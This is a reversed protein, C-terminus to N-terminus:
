KDGHFSTGSHRPYYDRDGAHYGWGGNGYYGRDGYRGDLPSVVCGSLISGALVALALMMGLQKM